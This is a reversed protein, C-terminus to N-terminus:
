SDQVFDGLLAPMIPAYDLYFVNTLFEKQIIGLVFMQSRDLLMPNM